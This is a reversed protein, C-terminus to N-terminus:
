LFMTWDTLTPCLRHITRTSSSNKPVEIFFVLTHTPVFSKRYFLIEFAILVWFTHTYQFMRVEGNLELILRLVGHAAPHQPGFNVIFLLVWLLLAFTLQFLELHLAVKRRHCVYRYLTEDGGREESGRGELNRGCNVCPAKFEGTSMLM